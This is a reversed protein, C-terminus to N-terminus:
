HAYTRIRSRPYVSESVTPGHNGSIITVTGVNFSTVLGVHGGGGRRGMTAIAGVAPLALRRGYGAFSM